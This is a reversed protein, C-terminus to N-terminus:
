SASFYQDGLVEKDVVKECIIVWLLCSYEIHKLDVHQQQHQQHKFVKHSVYIFLLWYTTLVIYFYFFTLILTEHQFASHVICM